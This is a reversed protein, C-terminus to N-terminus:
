LFRELIVKEGALASERNKFGAEIIKTDEGPLHVYWLKDSNSFKVDSARQMTLDGENILAETIKDEHLFVISGDPKIRIMSDEKRQLRLSKM